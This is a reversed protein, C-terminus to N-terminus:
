SGPSMVQHNNDRSITIEIITTANLKSYGKERIGVGRKYVSTRVLRYAMHETNPIQYIGSSCTSGSYYVYNCNTIVPIRTYSNLARATPRELRLRAGRQDDNPHGDAEDAGAAAGLALPRVVGHGVRREHAHRAVLVRGRRRRGVHAHVRDRDLRADHAELRRRRELPERRGLAGVGARQAPGVPLAGLDAQPLAAGLRRRDERQQLHPAGRVGGAETRVTTYQVGEVM